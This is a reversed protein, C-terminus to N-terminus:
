SWAPRAVIGHDFDSIPREKLAVEGGNSQSGDSASTNGEITKVMTDGPKVTERVVVVHEGGWLCGVDGPAAAYVQVATFGNTHALADATIYPAYGMRIRNPIKAGGLRCVVWCAFCGCWFVPGNYGTFLIFDEVKGGWNSGSPEEHVGVLPLAKAVASAGASKAYRKRLKQRYDARKSAAETEPKTRKRGRILKQVAESLVHRKLKDQEAGCAGLSLAVEQAADFTEGGLKGDTEIERDVKLHDFQKNVSSQLAKVDSGHLLPSALNLPRHVAKTASM